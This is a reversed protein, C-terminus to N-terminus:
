TASTSELPSRRQDFGQHGSLRAVAAQALRSRPGLAEGQRTPSGVVKQDHQGETLKRYQYTSLVVGAIEENEVLFIVDDRGAVVGIFEPFHEQVLKTDILRPDGPEM